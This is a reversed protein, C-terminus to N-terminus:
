LAIMILQQQVVCKGGCLRRYRHMSLVERHGCCVRCGGMVGRRSRQRRGFFLRDIAPSSQHRPASRCHHVVSLGLRGAPNPGYQLLQRRPQWPPPPHLPPLRLPPLPPPLPTFQYGGGSALGANDSARCTTVMSIIVIRYSAHMDKFIHCKVAKKVMQCQKELEMAM